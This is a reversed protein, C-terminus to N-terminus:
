KSLLPQKFGFVRVANDHFVSKWHERPIARKVAELYPKVHVLPWDTGFLLKKPNEVYLFIWHIPKIVFEQISEDDAKEMEGIMLASLDGFVNDNKYIVEGASQIWPNGIHALVFTVKPYKVAIEDVSLPDAYKVLAMKDSTDGTHFVAPVKLREAVRYFPHYFPDSPYKPVYGLYVKMCQYHGKKIEMEVQSPTVGPVVAACVIHEHPSKKLALAHPDKRDTHIVLGGVGAAAYEAEM